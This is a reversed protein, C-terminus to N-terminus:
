DDEKLALRVVAFTMSLSTWFVLAPWNSFISQSATLPFLLLVLSGAVLLGILRTMTNGRLLPWAALLLLLLFVLYGALGVIGSSALWEICVNHPHQPCGDSMRQLFQANCVLDFTKLGTGLLPNQLWMDLGVSFLEGYHSDRINRIIIGFQLVRIMLRESSLAVLTLLGAVGGIAALGYLRYRPFVLVSGCAATIIALMALMAAAREGTLLIFILGVLAALVIAVTPWLVRRPLLLLAAPLLPFGIRAVFMGINPRDLPGTIRVDLYMPIGLLSTGRILQVLGDVISFALCASWLGIVIKLDSRSRFLWTMAAAFLLAFRLWPLSRSFSAAPSVALPSVLINLVLWIILLVILLPHRTIDWRRGSILVALYSVGIISAAADAAGRAFLLLVPLLAFLVLNFQRLRDAWVREDRLELSAIDTRIM